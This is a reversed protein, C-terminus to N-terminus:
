KKQANEQTRILREHRKRLEYEFKEKTEGHMYDTGDVKGELQLRELEEIDTENEPM